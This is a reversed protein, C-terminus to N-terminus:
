LLGEFLEEESLLNDREAIRLVEKLTSTNVGERTDFEDCIQNCIGDALLCKDCYLLKISNCEGREKIFAIVQEKIDM